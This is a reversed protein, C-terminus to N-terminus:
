ISALTGNIIFVRWRPGHVDQTFVIRFIVKYGYVANVNYFLM